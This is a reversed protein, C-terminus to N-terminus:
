YKKSVAHLIDRMANEKELRKAIAQQEAIEVSPEIKAGKSGKGGKGLSRQSQSLATASRQQSSSADAKLDKHTSELVRM